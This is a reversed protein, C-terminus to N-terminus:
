GVQIKLLFAYELAIEKLFDFRGSAGGHGYNMETKLMIVQNGTHYDRLKAVWKAPEFYQVQSDHLGTTVLMYPYAQQQINEYPAYSKIYDYAEKENPNGWEDYENTTLPIREDLMTNVVDVFPVDAIIGRWLDPRINAIAGMLLGGASGGQAFLQKPHTYKKEILYEACSIFDTFTNKKFEMKGAEYWERGMEEGGRIHAIAFVFGRNLLSLRHSSFTPDMSMGYAGYEYLLLPNGEPKKESKKYVVSLPIQAGDAAEVMWRESQYETKDYGGILEKQKLLKREGSGLSEEYVAPPSVMSNYAFRLVKSGYEENGTPYVVYAPDDFSLFRESKTQRDIIKIRTLGEYREVVAWHTQFVEVGELLVEAQHAIVEQWHSVSTNELPCRMLRFNKANLNTLILFCDELAIVSYLVEKIRSQFLRFEANPEDASIWYEESSNTAASSIFVFAQNKSKHVSIYNSKDKEEYVTADDSAPTGVRHRKIYESLLTKENNLAYFVTQNDNAWVASGDTNKIGDDILEGTMLNKFYIRYQRRAVEDVGYAIWENDPSVSVGGLSFYAKGKAMEDVDLLVEEEADLSGKKRCYKFYQKGEETRMYYFYGNSLVPVSEDKEKIRGKMEEFLDRQLPETDEMMKTTYENEEKLYSLVEKDENDFFYGNMWHYPDLTKENHINRYFSKQPAKPANIKPFIM